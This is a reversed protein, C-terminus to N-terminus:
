EQLVSDPREFLITLVASGNPQLDFTHSAVTWDDGYVTEVYDSLALDQTHGPNAHFDALLEPPVRMIILQRSVSAM